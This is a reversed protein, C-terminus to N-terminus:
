DFKTCNKDIKKTASYFTQLIKVNNKSWNVKTRALINDGEEHMKYM